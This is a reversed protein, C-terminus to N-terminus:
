TVLPRRAELSELNCVIHIFFIAARIVLRKRRRNDFILHVIKNVFYNVVKEKTSGM